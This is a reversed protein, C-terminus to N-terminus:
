WRSAWAAPSTTASTAAIAPLERFLQKERFYALQAGLTHCSVSSQKLAAQTNAHEEAATAGFVITNPL